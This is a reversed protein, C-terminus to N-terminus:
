FHISNCVFVCIQYLLYFLCNVPVISTAIDTASTVKLFSIVALPTKHGGDIDRVTEDHCDSVRMFYGLPEESNLLWCVYDREFPRQDLSKTILYTKWPVSGEFFGFCKHKIVAGVELNKIPESCSDAVMDFGSKGSQKLKIRCSKDKGFKLTFRNLRSIDCEVYKNEDKVLNYWGYEGLHFRDRLNDKVEGFYLGDYNCFTEPTLLWTGTEWDMDPEIVSSHSLRFGVVYDSFREIGLIALRPRCGNEPLSVIFYETGRGQSPFQIDSEYEVQGKNEGAFKWKGLHQFELIKESIKVYGEGLYETERFWTGRLDEPTTLDEWFPSRECLHSSRPCANRLDRTNLDLQSCWPSVDDCVDSIDHSSLDVKLYNRTDAYKSSSGEKCIGDFFIQMQFEKGRGGERPLRVCMAINPTDDYAIVYENGGENWSTFCTLPDGKYIKGHLPSKCNKVKSSSFLMGGGKECEDEVRLNAKEPNECHKTGDPSYQIWGKIALGGNLSCSMYPMKELARVWANHDEPFYVFLLGHDNILNEDSCMKELEVDDLSMDKVESNRIQFAIGGRQRFEMCLVRAHNNKDPAGITLLAKTTNVAGGHPGQQSCYLNHGGASEFDEGSWGHYAKIRGNEEITWKTVQHSPAFLPDYNMLRFSPRPLIGDSPNILTYFSCDEKSDGHTSTAMHGIVLYAIPVINLVGM